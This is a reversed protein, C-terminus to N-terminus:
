EQRFHHIDGNRNKYGEKRNAVYQAPIFINSNDWFVYINEPM